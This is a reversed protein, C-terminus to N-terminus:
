QSGSLLPQMEEDGRCTGACADELSSHSWDARSGWRGRPKPLVAPRADYLAISACGVREASYGKVAVIRVNM